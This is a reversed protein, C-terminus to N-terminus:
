YRKKLIPDITFRPMWPRSRCRNMLEWYMGVAISNKIVGPVDYRYRPPDTYQHSRRYEPSLDDFIAWRINNMYESISGFHYEFINHHFWENFDRLARYGDEESVTNGNKALIAALRKANNQLRPLSHKSYDACIKIWEIRKININTEVEIEPLWVREILTETDLWDAFSELAALIRGSDCGLVSHQSAYRIYYLFTRDTDRMGNEPLRPLDFPRANKYPQVPSLFDGLLINLVRQAHANAPRLWLNEYPEAINSFMTFNVMDDISAWATNLIIVQHEEQSWAM